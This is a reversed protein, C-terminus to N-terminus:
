CSWSTAGRGFNRYNVWAISGSGAAVITEVVYWDAERPKGIMGASKDPSHRFPGEFDSRIDTTLWEPHRQDQMVNMMLALDIAIGL